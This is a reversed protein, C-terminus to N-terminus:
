VVGVKWASMDQMSFRNCAFSCNLFTKSPGLASFSSICFLVFGAFVSQSNQALLFHPLVSLGANTPRGCGVCSRVGAPNRRLFSGHRLPQLWKKEWICPIMRLKCRVIRAASSLCVLQTSTPHRDLFDGLISCDSPMPNLDILAECGLVRVTKVLQLTILAVM